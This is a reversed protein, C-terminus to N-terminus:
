VFPRLLLERTGIGVFALLLLPPPSRLPLPSWESSPIFFASLVKRMHPPPPVASPLLYFNLLTWYMFTMRPFFHSPFSLGDTHGKDNNNNRNSFHICYNRWRGALSFPPDALFTWSRGPNSGAAMVEPLCTREEILHTNFSQHTTLPLGIVM